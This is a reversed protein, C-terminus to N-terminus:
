APVAHVDPATRNFSHLCATYFSLSIRLKETPRISEHASGGWLRDGNHKGVNAAAGLEILFDTVFLRVAKDGFRQLQHIVTDPLM